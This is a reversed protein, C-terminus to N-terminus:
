FNNHGTNYFYVVGNGCIIVSCFFKLYLVIVVFKWSMLPPEIVIWIIDNIHCGFAGAVRLLFL